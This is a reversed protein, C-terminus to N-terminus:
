APTFRRHANGSGAATAATTRRVFGGVAAAFEAAHTIPWCHSGGRSAYVESQPLHRAYERAFRPPTTHDRAGWALLVPAEVKRAYGTLDASLAARTQRAYNRPHRAFSYVLASWHRAALPCEVALDRFRGVTARWFSQPRGGIGDAVVVRGVRAPHLAAVILAVGGSHSHGVVTASEVGLVDLAAACWAAYEELTWPLPLRDAQGSGPMEVAYVRHAAALHEVTTRYPGVRGLPSAFLVAPPGGSGASACWGRFGATDLPRFRFGARGMGGGTTAPVSHAFGTGDGIILAARAARIGTTNVGIALVAAGAKDPEVTRSSVGRAVEVQNKVGHGPRRWRTLAV